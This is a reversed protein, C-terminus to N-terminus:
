VTGSLCRGAYTLCSYALNWMESTFQVRILEDELTQTFATFWDGVEFYEIFSSFVFSHVNTAGLM